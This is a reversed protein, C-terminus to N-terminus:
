FNFHNVKFLEISAYIHPELIDVTPGWTDLAVSFFFLLALSM